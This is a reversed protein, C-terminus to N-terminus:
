KSRYSIGQDIVGYMTIGSSDGATNSATGACAACLAALMVVCFLKFMQKEVAGCCL